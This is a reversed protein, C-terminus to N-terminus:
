TKKYHPTVPKFSMFEESNTVYYSVSVNGLRSTKRTILTDLEGLSIVMDTIYALKNTKVIGGKTTILKRGIFTGLEESMFTGNLLQMEENMILNVKMPDKVEYQVNDSFM